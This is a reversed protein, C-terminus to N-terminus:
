RALNRRPLLNGKVRVNPSPQMSPTMNLMPSNV